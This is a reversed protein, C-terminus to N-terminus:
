CYIKQAKKCTSRHKAIPKPMHAGQTQKPVIRDPLEM